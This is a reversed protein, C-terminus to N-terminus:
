AGKKDEIKSERYEEFLISEKKPDYKISYKESRETFVQNSKIPVHRSNGLKIEEGYNKVFKFEWYKKSETLSINTKLDGWNKKFSVLSDDAYKKDIYNCLGALNIQPDFQYHMALSSNFVRTGNNSKAIQKLNDIISPDIPKENSDTKFFIIVTEKIIHIDHLEPVRKRIIDLAKQITAAKAKDTKGPDENSLPYESWALIWGDASIESKSDAVEALEMGIIRQFQMLIIFIFYRKMVIGKMIHM